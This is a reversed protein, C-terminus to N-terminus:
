NRVMKKIKKDGIWVLENTEIDALELNVQYFIVRNRGAGDVISSINGFVMFDAGLEKGFKKQTSPDAFDQQDAREDRLKQRFVDNTVVRVLGSKIYEREMDKIYTDADIHEHSKNLIMGVIVVPRRDNKERFRRLWSEELSSRTMEEAVLRSDTDNWRGSLDTVENPDIRTIKPTPNCGSIWLMTLTLLSLYFTTKM